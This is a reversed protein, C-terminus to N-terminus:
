RWIWVEGGVVAVLAPVGREEPPCVALARVGAPAPLRARARLGAPTWTQVLVFDDGSDNTTVVEPAGDQDLDAVAIQAGAGEIVLQQEGYRLRLKGTSERSALLSRAGGDRAVVEVEAFADYRKALPTAVAPLDRTQGSCVSVDGEFAGGEPSPHACANANSMPVPIGFLTAVPALQADVQVGGRDTSGVLLAGPGRFVAGALPERLPVVARPALSTWAASKSVAVKAARVRGIAVRGRSVLAVEMGGDGDIDGCAAALVEGEDHKSKHLRAQELLVPALFARIEADLATSAFAHALPVPAPTRIRDWANAMSPYLDATARLEGRAIEVQVYVLQGAKGAVARAAALTEPRPHARAAPGIKGAVLQAVRMALDEGKPAPIDSVLPSAVVVPATASGKLGKAVEPAVTALASAGRAPVSVLAAALAARLVFRVRSLKGRL